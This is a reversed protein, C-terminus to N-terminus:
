AAMQDTQKDFQEFNQKMMADIKEDENEGPL